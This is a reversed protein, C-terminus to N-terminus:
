TWRSSAASAFPVARLVPKKHQLVKLAYVVADTMDDHEGNPFSLLEDIYFRPLGQAHMVNGSEYRAALPLARTTKDADPRIGKVPLSGRAMLEDVVAAQYQVKEIGIIQPSWKEAIGEVFSIVGRFSARIRQVDLVWITGDDAQGVVGCATYDASAKTSIALDVGMTITKMQAPPTGTKIWEAKFVEGGQATPRQQYLGAFMMSGMAAKRAQLVEIPYREPCLAEGLSRGIPDDQEAIGPLRIYEWDDAHENLLYGVLDDQHWRTMLVIISAGPEGRTYLTADFWSKVRRRYTPSQSEEWDKHPDDVLILDGGKGTISGGVGASLMGGGEGTHWDTAQRFDGGPKAWALPNDALEARVKAGFDKALADGYSALMVRKSPNLDLFWTPLWHSLFESKGHRPPMSVIIRAGAKTIAAQIKDSIYRLYPYATWAGHSMTEAYRWLRVRWAQESDIM